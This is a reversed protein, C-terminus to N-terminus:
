SNKSEERERNKTEAPKPRGIHKIVVTRASDLHCTERSWTRGTWIDRVAKESVGYIVSEKAASPASSKMKFIDVAQDQTLKARPKFMMVACFSMARPM